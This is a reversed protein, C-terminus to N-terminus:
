WRSVYSFKRKSPFQTFQSLLSPLITMVSEIIEVLFLLLLFFIASGGGAGAVHQAPIIRSGSAAPKGGGHGRAVGCVDIEEQTPRRQM